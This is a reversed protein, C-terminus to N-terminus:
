DDFRKQNETARLQGMAYTYGLKALTHATAIVAAVTLAIWGPKMPMAVIAVLLAILFRSAIIGAQDCFTEISM